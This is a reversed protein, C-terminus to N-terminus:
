GVGNQEVKTINKKQKTQTNDLSVDERRRPEKKKM